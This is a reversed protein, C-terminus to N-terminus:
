ASPRLCVIEVDGDRQAELEVMGAVDGAVMAVWAHVGPEALRAEWREQSWADSLTRRIQWNYPTGIREFTSRLLSASAQESREMHVPVPAPRGLRLQSPSTMEMFTVTEM